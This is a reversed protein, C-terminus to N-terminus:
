PTKTFFSSDLTFYGAVQSASTGTTWIRMARVTQPNPLNQSHFFYNIGGPTTSASDPATFTVPIDVLHWGIWNARVGYEFYSDTTDLQNNGNIDETVWSTGIGVNQGEQTPGNPVTPAGIYGWNGSADQEFNLTTAGSYAWPTGPAYFTPIGYSPIAPQSSARAPDVDLIANGNSDENIIGFDFLIWKDIGDNYIWSQFGQASSVDLGKPSLVQRVGAWRQSTLHSYPFELVSVRDSAQGTQAYLHGGGGAIGGNNDQPTTTNVQFDVQSTDDFFRVRNNFADPGSDYIAGGLFAPVPQPASSVLWATANISIGPLTNIKKAFRPIYPGQPSSCAIPLALLSIFGILYFGKKM